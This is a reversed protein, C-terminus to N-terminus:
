EQQTEQIFSFLCVFVHLIFLFWFCNFLILYGLINLCCKRQFQKFDSSYTGSHEKYTFAQMKYVCALQLEPPMAPWLPDWGLFFDISEALTVAQFFSLYCDFSPSFFVWVLVLGSYQWLFNSKKRFLLILSFLSLAQQSFHCSEKQKGATILKTCLRTSLFPKRAAVPSNNSEEKDRLLRLAHKLMRQQISGPLGQLWRELQPIRRLNSQSAM